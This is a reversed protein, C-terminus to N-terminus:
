PELVIKGFQRSEELLEHASRLQHLPLVTHVVSKVKGTDFLAIADRFEDHSTMTSGYIELQKWFLLPINTSGIPGTTAGYTVLRGGRALCRLSREWTAPGVNEVVVNVGEQNTHKWVAKSFDEENRDIVVDAGLDYALQVKGPTSTVAYVFAGALKALQIAM